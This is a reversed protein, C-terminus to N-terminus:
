NFVPANSCSVGKVLEVHDLIGRRLHVYVMDKIM